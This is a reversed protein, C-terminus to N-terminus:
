IRPRPASTSVREAPLGKGPYEVMLTAQREALAAITLSPPVGPESPYLSGDAVFLGPNGFVEGRHDVVGEDPGRGIAAGGMPHVSVLSPSGRGGPLNSVVHSPEYAAMIEDMLQETADYYGPADARSTRLRVGDPGTDIPARMRDRGIAFFIYASRLKNAFLGGFAAAPFGVEGYVNDAGEIDARGTILAPYSPGLPGDPSPAGWAVAMMDGNPSFRRGLSAPLQLSHHKHKAEALLRLTNLAGAALVARPAHAVQYSGDRRDRFYVAYGREDRGIAEVESLDRIDAGAHMAAPLYTRDLTTKAGTPCGVFCEGCAICAPQHVGAANGQPQEDFNVAIPPYIVERGVREAAQAMQRPRAFERRKDAPLPGPRLMSTVRQFHPDLEAENMEDPLEDYFDAAPRMLLNTYILSGGGVGSSTWTLQHPHVHIELLGRADIEVRRVRESRAWTVNRVARLMGWGRPYPHREVDVDGDLRPGWWPGRELVLVRMGAEALRLATTSGGFGSGIIIADWSM